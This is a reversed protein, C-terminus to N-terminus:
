SQGAGQLKVASKFQGRNDQVWDIWFRIHAASDIPPKTLRQVYLIQVQAGGLDTRLKLYLPTAKFRQCSLDRPPPVTRTSKKM